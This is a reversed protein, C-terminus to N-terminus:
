QRLIWRVSSVYYSAIPQGDASLAPHFKARKMLLKCTLAAFDPANTMRQIHCDTPQGTADVMLRFDIVASIGMWLAGTPYDASRLWDGPKGFPKAAEKGKEQQVPDLGWQKVLDATCTRMAAMPAGLSRVNLTVVRGNARITLQAVAAEQQPTPAALSDGDHSRNLLDRKGIMLMPLNDKGITAVLAEAPKPLPLDPGFAATVPIYVARSQSFPRGVVSVIVTSSPEYRDLILLVQNKGEGFARTLRCGDEDYAM